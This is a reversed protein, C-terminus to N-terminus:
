PGPLFINDGSEGKTYQGGSGLIVTIREMKGTPPTGLLCTITLVGSTGNDLTDSISPNSHQQSRIPVSQPSAREAENESGSSSTRHGLEPQSSSSRPRHAAVPDYAAHDLWLRWIVQSWARGLVRTAHTHGAGRVRAFQNIDAARSDGLL